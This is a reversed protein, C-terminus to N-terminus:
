FSNWITALVNLFTLCPFPLASTLHPIFHDLELFVMVRVASTFLNSIFCVSKVASSIM